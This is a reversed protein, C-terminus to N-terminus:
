SDAHQPPSVKQNESDMQDALLHKFADLEEIEDAMWPVLRHLRRRISRASPEDGSRLAQKFLSFEAKFRLERDNLKRAIQIAQRWRRAASAHKEYREDLEGLMMQSIAISRQQDLDVSIRSSARLAREAARNRNMLLFCQALNNLTQACEARRAVNRFVSYAKHYFGAAQQPDSCEFALRARTCYLYGLKETTGSSEAEAIAADAFYEASDFERLRLHCHALRELILPHSGRNFWGTSLLYQFEHLSFRLRGLSLTATGCNMQACVIQERRDLYLNLVPANGALEIGDRFLAYAEWFFGRDLARKGALTLEEYSLGMTDPGGVRDLELDLEMREVLVDAPVEYIRSLAILKPFALKQLGNECRSLYGKGIKEPFTESLSSVDYMSLQRRERLMKLYRGFARSSSEAMTEGISAQRRKLTSLWRKGFPGRGAAARTAAALLGQDPQV